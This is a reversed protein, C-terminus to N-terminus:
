PEETGKLLADIHAAYAGSKDHLFRLEPAHRLTLRRGIEGRLYGARKAISAVAEDPDGEGGVFSLGVKAVTNDVSLEVKTVTLLGARQVKPDVSERGLILALEDRIAGELRPRRGGGSGRPGKRGTM